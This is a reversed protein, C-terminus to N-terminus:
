AAGVEEVGFVVRKGLAAAYRALTDITPNGHGTELRSLTGKDM